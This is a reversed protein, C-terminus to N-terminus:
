FGYIQKFLYGNYVKYTNRIADKKQAIMDM